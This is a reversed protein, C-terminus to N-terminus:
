IGNKRLFSLIKQEYVRPSEILGQCHKANKIILIEKNSNEIKEYIKFANEIKVFDDDGGHLILIPKKFNRLNNLFDANEFDIDYARKSYNAFIKM